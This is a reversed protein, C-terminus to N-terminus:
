FIYNSHPHIASLRIATDYLHMTNTTTHFGDFGFIVVFPDFEFLEYIWSRGAIACGTAVSQKGDGTYDSVAVVIQM